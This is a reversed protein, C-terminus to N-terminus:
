KVVRLSPDSLYSNTTQSAEIASAMPISQPRFVGDAYVYLVQQDLGFGIAEPTFDAATLDVRRYNSALTEGSYVLGFENTAENQRWTEERNAVPLPFDFPAQIAFDTTKRFTREEGLGKDISRLLHFPGPEFEFRAWYKSKELEHTWVLVNESAVTSPEGIPILAEGNPAFLPLHRSLSNLHDFIDATWDSDFGESSPRRYGAGQSFEYCRVDWKDPSATSSSQRAILSYTDTRLVKAIHSESLGFATTTVVRLEYKRLGGLMTVTGELTKTQLPVESGPEYSIRSGVVDYSLPPLLALYDRQAAAIQTASPPTADAMAAPAGMALLTTVFVVHVVHRM